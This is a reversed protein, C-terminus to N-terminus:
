GVAAATPAHEDQGAARPRKTVARLLSDVVVPLGLVAPMWMLVGLRAAEQPLPHASIQAAGAGFLALAPWFVERQRWALLALGVLAPALLTVSRSPDTIWGSWFEGNLALLDRWPHPVLPKTFHATFTDQLTVEAGPLGLLPIAAATAAAAVGCLVAAVATARRRARGGTLALLACAVALAAALLLLSSFRVVGLVLWSGALVALGARGSGRRVLLIGAVAGLACISVLGSALAQLAWWGLPGALFAAQGAAAALAGLGALRVVTYCLLGGAIAVLFGLLWMGTTVGFAAIFPAALLPYGVRTTFISQYRPDLTTVDGRDLYRDFCAVQRRQQMEAPEPNPTWNGDWPKQAARTACFAELADRHAQEAPVGVIKEAQKAYRYSDTFLAWGSGTLPQLALFVATVLVPLAWWRVSM